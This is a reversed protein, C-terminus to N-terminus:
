SIKIVKGNTTEYILIGKHNLYNKYQKLMQPIQKKDELALNPEYALEDKIESKKVYPLNTVILDFKGSINQFLNSKVFNIDKSKLKKANFKAVKLAKNSIDSAVIKYNFGIKELELALAIAICGSGTGLELIDWIKNKDEMKIKNLALEIIRETEPRPILVDKNIHFKRGYFEKHGLIFALPFRKARLKALASFQKEQKKELKIEPHALIYEKDKKLVFGLLLIADLDATKIKAKSFNDVALDIAKKYNM